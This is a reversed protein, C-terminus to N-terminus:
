SAEIKRYQNLHRARQIGQIYFRMQKIANNNLDEAIGYPMNLLESVEGITKHGEFRAKIVDRKIQDIQNIASVILRREDPVVPCKFGLLKALHDFTNKEVYKFVVDRIDMNELHKSRKLREIIQGM